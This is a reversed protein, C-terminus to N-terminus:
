YTLLLLGRNVVKNEVPDDSITSLVEAKHKASLLQQKLEGFKQRKSSEVDAAGLAMMCEPRSELLSIQNIAMDLAQEKPFHWQILEVMNPNGLLAAYQFLTIKKQLRKGNLNVTGSLNVLAPTAELLRHLTDLDDNQIYKFLLTVRTFAFFGRSCAGLRLTSNYDVFPTICELVDHNLVLTTDKLNFLPREPAPDRTLIDSGCLRKFYYGPHEFPTIRVPYKPNVMRPLHPANLFYKYLSLYKELATQNSNTQGGQAVIELVKHGLESHAQALDLITLTKVGSLKRMLIVAGRLFESLDAALLRLYEIHDDIIRRIKTYLPASSNKPCLAEFKERIVEHHVTINKPPCDFTLETKPKNPFASFHRLPINALAHDLGMHAYLFEAFNLIFCITEFIEPSSLRQFDLLNECLILDPYPRTFENMAELLTNVFIVDERQQYEPSSEM